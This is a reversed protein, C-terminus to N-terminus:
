SRPTHNDNWEANIQVVTVDEKPLSSLTVAAGTGLASALAMIAITKNM